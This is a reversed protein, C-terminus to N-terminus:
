EVCVELNIVVMLRHAYKIVIGHNERRRRTGRIMSRFTKGSGNRAIIQTRNLKMGNPAEPCISDTRLRPMNRGPTGNALQGSGEASLYILTRPPCASMAASLTSMKCWIDQCTSRRCAWELGRGSTERMIDGCRLCMFERNITSWRSIVQPLIM